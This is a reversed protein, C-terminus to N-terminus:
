FAYIARVRRLNPAGDWAAKAISTNQTFSATFNFACTYANTSGVESSTWYVPAITSGVDTIAVGGLGTIIANYRARAAADLPFNGTAGVHTRILNNITNLMMMMAGPAPTDPSFGLAGDNIFATMQMFEWFSPIYWGGNIDGSNLGHVWAFAPYRTAFDSSSGHAEIIARTNAKGDVVSRAGPNEENAPGWGVSVEDLSIALGHKGGDTLMYIVGMPNEANPYPEGVERLSGEQTITIREFREKASIFIRTTRPTRRSNSFASIAVNGQEDREINLWDADSDIRWIANSSQVAIVQPNGTADLVVDNTSVSLMTGKDDKCAWASLLALSIIAFFIKKM